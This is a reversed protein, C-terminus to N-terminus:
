PTVIATSSPAPQSDLSLSQMWYSGESGATTGREEMRNYERGEESPM